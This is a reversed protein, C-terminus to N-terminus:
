INLLKKAYEIKKLEKIKNFEENNKIVINDNDISLIDENKLETTVININEPNNLLKKIENISHTGLKNYIVFLDEFYDNIKIKKIFNLNVMERFPLLITSSYSGYYIHGIGTKIFKTFYNWVIEPLFSIIDSYIDLKNKGIKLIKSIYEEDFIIGSSLQIGLFSSMTVYGSSGTLVIYNFEDPYNNMINNIEDKKNMLMTGIYNEIVDNDNIIGSEMINNYLDINRNKYATEPLNYERALLISFIYNKIEGSNSKMYKNLKEDINM